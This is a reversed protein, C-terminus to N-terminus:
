GQRPFGWAAHMVSEFPHLQGKCSPGELLPYRGQTSRAAMIWRRLLRTKPLRGPVAVMLRELQFSKKSASFARPSWPTSNTTESSYGPKFFSPRPFCRPSASRSGGAAPAGCVRSTPQFAEVLFDPPAGIHDSDEGIGLAAQPQHPRQGDLTVFGTELVMAIQADVSLACSPPTVGPRVM